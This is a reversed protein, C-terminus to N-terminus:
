MSAILFLVITTALSVCRNSEKIVRLAYAKQPMEQVNFKKLLEKKNLPKPFVFKFTGITSGLVKKLLKLVFSLKPIIVSGRKSRDGGIERFLVVM